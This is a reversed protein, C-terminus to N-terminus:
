LYDNKCTRATDYFSCAVGRDSNAAQAWCREEEGMEWFSVTRTQESCFFDQNSFSAAATWKSSAFKQYRKLIFVNHTLFHVPSTSFNVLDHTFARVVNFNKAVSQRFSFFVLLELTHLGNIIIQDQLMVPKGRLYFRETM